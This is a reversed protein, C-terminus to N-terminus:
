LQRRGAADIGRRFENQAERVQSTVEHNIEVRARQIEARLRVQWGRTSSRRTAHLEDRRGRLSEAEHEGTTLARQKGELRVTVGNLVTSLARMTNAEALMATRGTVLDRLEAHLEAIGSKDRL